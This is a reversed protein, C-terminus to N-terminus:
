GHPFLRSEAARFALPDDNVKATPHQAQVSLLARTTRTLPLTEYVVFRLSTSGGDGATRFEIPDYTKPDVFYTAKGNNGVIRIAERDSLTVQGLERADGARLLELVERRFPEEIPDDERKPPAPRGGSVVVRHVKGDANKWRLLKGAVPLESPEARVYVTSRAADYLAESAGASSTETAPDGAVQELQRRGYPKSTSQWSEDRWTSETGDGNRQRGVISVHLIGGEEVALAAAARDVISPGHSGFLGSGTAAVVVSAAAALVLAGRVARMRLRSRRALDRRVARELQRGFVILKDPLPNV